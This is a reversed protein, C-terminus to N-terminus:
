TLFPINTNPDEIGVFTIRRDSQVRALGTRATLSWPAFNGFFALGGGFASTGFSDIDFQGLRRAVGFDFYIAEVAVARKIRFGGSLKYAIVAKDCFACKISSEGIGGAVTVYPQASTARSASLLSIVILTMVRASLKM